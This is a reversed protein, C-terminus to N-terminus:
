IKKNKKLKNVKQLTATIGNKDIIRMGKTSLYLKIFKKDEPIWFKHKHLNLFFKRKTANMAHSRNNGVITKKLTINCIKSM